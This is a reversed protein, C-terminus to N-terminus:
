VIEWESSGAVLTVSSYLVDLTVSTQGDITDTGNRNITVDRAADGRAQFKVRIQDGDTFSSLAPLNIVMTASNANISYHYNALPTLPSHATTDRAQYTLGGGSPLNTLLSGDVAPLKAAATMQVIQNAGNGVDLTAVTGLGLSTRADGLTETVFNSGDGVIFAGDAPTLGAVDTLQADFAQVHVGIALGLNTRATGADDLDSLNNSALLDGSVGSVATQVFQTTALQTTNTGNGATPATPTGSFDPDALRALLATDTM